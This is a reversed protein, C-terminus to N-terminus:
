VHSEYVLPIIDTNFYNQITHYQFMISVTCDLSPFKDQNQSPYTYNKKKKYYSM